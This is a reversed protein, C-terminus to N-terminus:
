CASFATPICDPGKCILHCRCGMVRGTARHRLPEDHPRDIRSELGGKTDDQACRGFPAFDFSRVGLGRDSVNEIARVGRAKAGGCWGAGGADRVVGREWRGWWGRAGWHPLPSLIIGMIPSPTCNSGLQPSLTVDLKCDDTSIVSSMSSSCRRATFWVAGRM